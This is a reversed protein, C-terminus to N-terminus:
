RAAPYDNVLRKAVLLGRHNNTTLWDLGVINIACVKCGILSRIIVPAHQSSPYTITTMPTM